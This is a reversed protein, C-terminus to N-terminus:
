TRHHGEPWSDVYIGGFLLGLIPVLFYYNHMLRFLNLLGYIWFLITADNPRRHSQPFNTIRLATGYYDQQNSMLRRFESFAALGVLM